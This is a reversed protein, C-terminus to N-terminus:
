LTSIYLTYEGLVRIRQGQKLAVEQSKRGSTSFYQPNYDTVVDYHQVKFPQAGVKSVSACKGNTQRHVPHNGNRRHSYSTSVVLQLCVWAAPLDNM